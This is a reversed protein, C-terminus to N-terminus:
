EKILPEHQGKVWEGGDKGFKYYGKYFMENNWIGQVTSIQWKGGRRTKYGNQNLADVTSLMTCGRHKREMICLVAPVEEENIVLKGNETRYGMPARGGIYAGKSAKDVRGDNKRIPANETEVRYLTDVFENLIKEYLGYAGFQSEAAFLDSHKRKLLSKVAYFEYVSDSVVASDAVIIAGVRRNQLWEGCAFSMFGDEDEEVWESVALDNAMSYRTILERDGEGEKGRRIYGIAKKM